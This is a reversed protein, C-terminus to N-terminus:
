IIRFLVLRVPRFPARESADQDKGTPLHCTYRARTSHSRGLCGRGEQYSSLRFGKGCRECVTAGWGM